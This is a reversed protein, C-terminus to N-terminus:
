SVSHHTGYDSELKSEYQKLLRRGWCGWSNKCRINEVIQPILTFFEPQMLTEILREKDKHYDFFCRINIFSAQRAAEFREEFTDATQRPRDPAKNEFYNSVWREHRRIQYAKLQNATIGIEALVHLMNKMSDVADSYRIYRNEKLRQAETESITDLFHIGTAPHVEPFPAIRRELSNGNLWNIIVWATEPLTSSEPNHSFQEGLLLKFESKGILRFIHRFLKYQAKHCASCPCGMFGNTLLDSQTLFPLNSNLWSIVASKGNRVATVLTSFKEPIRDHPIYESERDNDSFVDVLRENADYGEVQKAFRDMVYLARLFGEWTSRSLNDDSEMASTAALAAIKAIEYREVFDALTSEQSDYHSWAEVLDEKTIKNLISSVSM